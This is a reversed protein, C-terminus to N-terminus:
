SIMYGGWESVANEVDMMSNVKYKKVGRGFGSNRSPKIIMYPENDQMMKQYIGASVKQLNEESYYENQVIFRNRCRKALLIPLPVDPLLRDFMNKDRWTYEYAHDNYYAYVIHGAIYDPVFKPDHIGTAFYYMRHYSYDTIHIGFQSWYNQIANKEESTLDPVSYKECYKQALEHHMYMRGRMISDYNRKDEICNIYQETWRGRILEM